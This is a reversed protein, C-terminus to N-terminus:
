NPYHHSVLNVLFSFKHTIRKSRSIQGIDISNLFYLFQFSLKKEKGKSSKEQEGGNVGEMRGGERGENRGKEQEGEMM